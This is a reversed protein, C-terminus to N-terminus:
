NITIITTCIFYFQNFNFNFQCYICRLDGYYQSLVHVYIGKELWTRDRIERHACKNFLPNELNEHQNVVHSLFFVFKAWLLDGNGSHTSM